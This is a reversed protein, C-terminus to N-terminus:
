CGGGLGPPLADVSASLYQKDTVGDRCIPQLFSPFYPLRLKHGKTCRRHSAAPIANLVEEKSDVCSLEGAELGPGNDKEDARVVDVAVTRFFNVFRDRDDDVFKLVPPNACM